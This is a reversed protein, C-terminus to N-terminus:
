GVFQRAHARLPVHEQAKIREVIPYLLNDAEASQCRPQSLSLRSEFTIRWIGTQQNFLLPVERVAIVVITRVGQFHAIM